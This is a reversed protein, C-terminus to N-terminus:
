ITFIKPLNEQPILEGTERFHNYEEQMRYLTEAAHGFIISLRFSIEKTIPTSGNVIGRVTEIPINTIQSLKQEDLSQAPMLWLKLFNGPHEPLADSQYMDELSVEGQM